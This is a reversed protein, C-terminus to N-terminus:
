LTLSERFGLNFLSNGWCYTPFFIRLVTVIYEGISKTSSIRSLIFTIIPLVFSTFFSILFMSIFASIETNFRFSMAYSWSIISFGSLYCLIIIFKITETENLLPVDFIMIFLPSFIPIVLFKCYDM